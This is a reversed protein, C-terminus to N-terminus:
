SIAIGWTMAYNWVPHLYINGAGVTLWWSDKLGAYSFQGSGCSFFDKKAAYFDPTFCM